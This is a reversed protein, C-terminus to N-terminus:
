LNANPQTTRTLKGAMLDNLFDRAAPMLEYTPHAGTTRTAPVEGTRRIWKLNKLQLLKQSTEGASRGVMPAIAMCDSYGRHMAQLIRIEWETLNM